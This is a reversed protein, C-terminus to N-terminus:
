VQSVEEKVLACAAAAAAAATLCFSAVVVGFVGHSIHVAAAERSAVRSSSFWNVLLSILSPHLGELLIRQTELERQLEMIQQSAQLNVALAPALVKYDAIIGFGWNGGSYVSHHNRDIHQM